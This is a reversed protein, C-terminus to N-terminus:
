CITIKLSCTALGRVRVVIRCYSSYKSNDSYSFFLHFGKLDISTNGVMSPDGMLSVCSSNCISPDGM